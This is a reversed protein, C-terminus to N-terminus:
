EGQLGRKESRAEQYADRLLDAYKTNPPRISLHAYGRRIIEANVFTNDKLFVYALTRFDEDKSSVDLELRVYQEYLLSHVFVFAEEEVTKLPTTQQIAFGFENREVEEIRPLDPARLGILKVKEGGRLQITDASIIREVLVHEYQDSHRNLFNYIDEAALPHVEGILLLCILWFLIRM